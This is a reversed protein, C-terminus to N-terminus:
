LLYTAILLIALHIQWKKLTLQNGASAQLMSNIKRTKSLLNM